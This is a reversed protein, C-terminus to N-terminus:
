QAPIMRRRLPFHARYQCGVQQWVVRTDLLALYCLPYWTQDPDNTVLSRAFINFRPSQPKGKIYM